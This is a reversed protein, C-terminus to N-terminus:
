IKRSSGQDAHMPSVVSIKLGSLADEFQEDESPPLANRDITKRYRPKKFSGDRRIIEDQEKIHLGKGLDENMSSEYTAKFLNQENNFFMLINKIKNIKIIKAFHGGYNRLYDKILTYENVDM